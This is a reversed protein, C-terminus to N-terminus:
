EDWDDADDDEDAYPQPHWAGAHYTYTARPEPAWYPPASYPRRRISMPGAAPAAACEGGIRGHAMGAVFGSLM